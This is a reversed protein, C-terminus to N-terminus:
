QLHVAPEEAECVAPLAQFWVFVGFLEHKPIQLKGKVSEIRHATSLQAYGRVGKTGFARKCAHTCIRSQGPKALSDWLSIRGNFAYQIPVNSEFDRQVKSKGTSIQDLKARDQVGQVNHVTM